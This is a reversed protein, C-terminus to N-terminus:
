GGEAREIITSVPITSIPTTSIPTTAAEAKGTLPHLSHVEFLADSEAQTFLAINAIKVPETLVPAFFTELMDRVQAQQDAPVAGTLTMHFRFQEFVYPYGWQELNARQIKDLQEPKRRALEAANLAARFREFHVVIDNALQQLQACPQAPVLAFFAGIQAIELKPLQVARYNSAFHMMSSLLHHEEFDQHLRFPAKLTAHFGYRRPEQTWANIQEGDASGIVPRRVVMGNFANRGLWNAAVRLLPDHAPPTFYIGYRM